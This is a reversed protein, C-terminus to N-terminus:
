GQDSRQFSDAAETLKDALNDLWGTMSDFCEHVSHYQDWFSKADGPAIACAADGGDGALQAALASVEGNVQSSVERLGDAARRLEAPMVEFEEAVL